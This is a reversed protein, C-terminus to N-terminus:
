KIRKSLDKQFYQREQQALKAQSVFYLPLAADTHMIRGDFLKWLVLKNDRGMSLIWRVYPNVMQHHGQKESGTREKAATNRLSSDRGAQHTYRSLDVLRMSDIMDEHHELVSVQQGTFINLVEM